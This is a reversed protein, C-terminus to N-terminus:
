LKYPINSYKIKVRKNPMYKLLFLDLTTELLPCNSGLWIEKIPNLRKDWNERQQESMNSWQDRFESMEFLENFKVDIYKRITGRSVMFQLTKDNAPSDIIGMNLGSVLRWEKEEFFGEHKISSLYKTYLIDDNDNLSDILKHVVQEQNKKSYSVKIIDFIYSVDTNAGRKISANANMINFDFGICIGRTDDGYNRWQSLLNPNESLCFDYVSICNKNKNFLSYRSTIKHDPYLDNLLNLGYEFETSDNMQQIDTLRITQNTIINYLTEVSCYHYLIPIDDNVNKHEKFTSGM